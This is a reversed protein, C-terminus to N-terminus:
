DNRKSNDQQGGRGSTKKKRAPEEAEPTAAAAAAEADAKGKAYADEADKKCKAYGADEVNKIEAAM